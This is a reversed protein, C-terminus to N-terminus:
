EKQNDREFAVIIDPVKWNRVDDYLSGKDLRNCIYAYTWGVAEMQWKRQEAVLDAMNMEKILSGAGERM